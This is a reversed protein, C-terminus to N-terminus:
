LLSMFYKESIGLGSLLNLRIDLNKYYNQDFEEIAKRLTEKNKNKLPIKVGKAQLAKQLCFMAKLNIYESCICLQKESFCYRRALKKYSIIIYKVGNETQCKFKGATGKKIELKVKDEMEKTYIVRETITEYESIPSFIKYCLKTTDLTSLYATAKPYARIYEYIQANACVTFSLFFVLVLINKKM